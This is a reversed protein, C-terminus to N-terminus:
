PRSPTSWHAVIEVPAGLARVSARSLVYGAGINFKVNETGWRQLMTHGMYHKTEADYHRLYARLNEVMVFADTDTKIFFDCSEVYEHSILKWMRWSKEWINRVKPDETRTVPVHLFKAAYKHTALNYKEYTKTGVVFKIVDCHGETSPSPGSFPGFLPASHQTALSAYVSALVSM